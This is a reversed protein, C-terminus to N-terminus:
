SASIEQAALVAAETRSRTGTKELIHRVHVKVTVESIYLRRAIERNRLGETLLGLIERERRTLTEIASQSSEARAVAADIKTSLSRVNEVYSAFLPFARCAHLIFDPHGREEVLEALQHALQEREAPSVLIQAVTSVVAPEVTSSIASTQSALELAADTHGLCGEALAAYARLEARTAADRATGHRALIRRAQEFRHQALSLRASVLHWNGQTHADSAYEKARRLANDAAAYNGLGIQANALGLHFHLAAFDLRMRGADAIGREYLEIAREYQMSYAYSRGLMNLFATRILPDTAHELFCMADSAATLAEPVSGLRVHRLLATSAARLAHNPDNLSAAHVRKALDDVLDNELELCALYQVYAANATDSTRRAVAEAQAGLELALDVEDALYAAQAARFYARSALPHNAALSESARRALMLAASHEGRRFRIEADALDAIASTTVTRALRVHEALTALRGTVLLDDIECSLAHEVNRAPESGSLATAFAEDWSKERVFLEILESTAEPDLTRGAETLTEVLFERWLPHLEYRGARREALLGASVGERITREALDGLVIAASADSISPLLGLLAIGTRVGADLGRYIEQALYGYLEEALADEPLDFTRALSALGIVAPWGEALGVLGPLPSASRIALVAATEDTDMALQAKGVELIDGYLVRRPTAWRPRRRSTVLLNPDTLSRFRDMFDESAPSEMAYHYDDIAIWSHEPWAGIELALLEALTAADEGSGDSLRARSRMTEGVGPLVEEIAAAVGQAFAVVDSASVDAEYWAFSRDGLSLWQRALITKGYGAPAVLTVTRAESRDLMHTLRPRDIVHRRDDSSRGAGPGTM